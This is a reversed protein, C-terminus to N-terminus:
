NELERRRSKNIQSNLYHLQADIMRKRAHYDDIKDEEAKIRSEMIIM